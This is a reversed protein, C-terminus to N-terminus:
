SFCSYDVCCKIKTGYKYIKILNYIMGGVERATRLFVESKRLGPACIMRYTVYCCIFENLLHKSPKRKNIPIYLASVIGM